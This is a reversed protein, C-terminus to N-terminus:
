FLIQSATREVNEFIHRNRELWIIWFLAHLFWIGFRLNISEWGIIGVFFFFFVSVCGPLVWLICFRWFAFSWLGYAISCHLLLHSITEEDCRCLCCWGALNYIFIM